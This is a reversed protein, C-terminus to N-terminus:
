EGEVIGASEMKNRKNLGDDLLDWILDLYTIRM